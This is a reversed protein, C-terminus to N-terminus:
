NPQRKQWAKYMGYSAISSLLFTIITPTIVVIPKMMIEKFVGGLTYGM